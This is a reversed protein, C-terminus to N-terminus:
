QLKPGETEKCGRPPMIKLGKEKMCKECAPLGQDTLYLDVGKVVDAAEIARRCYHCERARGPKGAPPECRKYHDHLRIQKLMGFHEKPVEEKKWEWGLRKAIEGALPVANLCRSDAEYEPIEPHIKEYMELIAQLALPLIPLEDFPDKKRPLDLKLEKRTQREIASSLLELCGLCEDVHDWGLKMEQPTIKQNAMKFLLARFSECTMESM